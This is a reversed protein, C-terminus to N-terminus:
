VFFCSNPIFDDYLIIDGKKIRRDTEEHAKARGALSSPSFRHMPVIEERLSTESATLHVVTFMWENVTLEKNTTSQQAVCSVLQRGNKVCPGQLYILPKM